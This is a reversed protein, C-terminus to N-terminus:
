APAFRAFYGVSPGVKREFRLGAEQARETLKGLTVVHPDGMLEGVVVRGGPKVVRALEKLAQVQDPIEGLVTVLYAADFTEDAYPLDQADGRAPNINAIGHEAARRATHDLMEQQIDFIALSGDPALWDAVPLAYYGTGPGVELVREGPQPELIERLRPRTIFPHPAEVWFRQNYPCASPNKRWWLAAGGVAAAGAGLALTTKRMSAIM